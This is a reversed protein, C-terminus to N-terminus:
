SKECREVMPTTTRHKCAAPVLHLGLHESIIGPWDPDVKTHAEFRLM